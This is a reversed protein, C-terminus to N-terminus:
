RRSNKICNQVFKKALGYRAFHIHMYSALTNYEMLGDKHDKIGSGISLAYAFKSDAPVCELESFHFEHGQLTNSTSSILCDHSVTAKTYNLKLRKQMKTTTNFLGVMRFKKSGYDIAKTLYMLGGCEAYIPVNDEALKKIITRMKKNKELSTGIIEPFGGGIYIGDCDPMKSDSV